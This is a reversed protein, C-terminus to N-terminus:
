FGKKTLGVLTYGEELKNRQSHLLNHNLHPKVLVKMLTPSTQTSGMEMDGM